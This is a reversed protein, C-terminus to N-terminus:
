RQTRPPIATFGKRPLADVCMEWAPKATKFAVVVGSPLLSLMPAAFTGKRLLDM